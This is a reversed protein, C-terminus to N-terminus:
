VKVHLGFNNDLMSPQGAQAAVGALKEYLATLVEAADGMQGACCLLGMRGCSCMGVLSVSATPICLAFWVIAAAAASM